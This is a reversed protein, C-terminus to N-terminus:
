IECECSDHFNQQLEKLEEHEMDIVSTLQPNVKVNEVQFNQLKHIVNHLQIKLAETM